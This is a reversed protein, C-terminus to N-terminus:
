AAQTHEVVTADQRLAPVFVNSCRLCIFKSDWEAYEGAFKTWNYRWGLVAVVVILIYGITMAIAGAFFSALWALFLIAVSIRIVPHKAPAAYKEALKSVSVGSSSAGGVGIHGGAGAVGFTTTSTKSTGGEVLLSLKQTQDSKCQPCSLDM